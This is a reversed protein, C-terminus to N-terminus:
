LVCFHKILLDMDQLQPGLIHLTNHKRLTVTFLLCILCTVSAVRKENQYFVYLFDNRPLFHKNQRMTQSVTMWQSLPTRITSAPSNYFENCWTKPFLSSLGVFNNWRDGLLSIKLRNNGRNPAWSRVSWTDLCMLSHLTLVVNAEGCQCFGYM